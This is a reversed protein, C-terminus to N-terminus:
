LAAASASAIGLTEAHLDLIAGRQPRGNATALGTDVAFAAQARVWHRVQAYDPLTQNAADIGAQIQTDTLAATLPWVVASLAPEGDGFVVAQALTPGSRLATEVWEPSVNRGFATILVHKIRGRVHVFGEADIEGLDGTPWWEGSSAAEGLYGSFLSGAIEIEGRSNLRLRAHPLPKGASGPRDAGPLNLTQVSAGESLGYGEHAPIGVQRAALVLSAGVAAGGVAVM